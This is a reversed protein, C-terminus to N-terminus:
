QPILIFNKSLSFSYGGQVSIRRPLVFDPNQIFSINPKSVNFVSFGLYCNKQTIMTGLNLNSYFIGTKYPDSGDFDDLFRYDYNGDFILRNFNLSKSMRGAQIGVSLQTKKGIDFKSNYNVMLSHINVLGNLALDAIYQVGVGGHLKDFQQDWGLTFTKSNSSYGPWQNRYVATVRGAPVENLFGTGAAAPNMYLPNAYFQTFHPDQANATSGIFIIVLFFFTYKM